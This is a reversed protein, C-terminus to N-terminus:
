LQVAQFGKGSVVGMWDGTNQRWCINNVELEEEYALVPTDIIIGSDGNTKSQQVNNCDWVLAQCDDGGTLVYNSSPHWRIMNIAAHNVGGLSGDLTAVPLGPMRMDIIIVQNSNIGITALHHQDINSTSLKLLAKANMASAGLSAGPGISSPTTALPLSPEYIITSHELSRLDFVRMSGDNGVSAFINSSNHIFKVDFVESDHAILQTMVTATDITDDGVKLLTHSRHLDWVTCTTDVSSTIIINPDTKNWDFSTVPPFTNIDEGGSGKTVSANNSSGSTSSSGSTNNALIHTQLLESEGQEYSNMSVKYLRLVELSAAVRKEGTNKMSPDWQLNTIPYEVSAEAINHFDFGEVIPDDYYRPLLGQYKQYQAHSSSTPSASDINEDLIRPDSGNGRTYDSGYKSGHLIQLKNNFGEKYSSLAVCEKDELGLYTWDACYLPLQSFYYSDRDMPGLTTATPSLSGSSTGMSGYPSPTYAPAGTGMKKKNYWDM